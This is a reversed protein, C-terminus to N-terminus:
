KLLRTIAFLVITILLASLGPFYIRRPGWKLYLDGPIGPFAKGRFHLYYLLGVIVVYLLLFVKIQQIM